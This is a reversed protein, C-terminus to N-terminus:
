DDSRRASAPAVSGKRVRDYLSPDSKFVMAQAAAWDLGKDEKQLAKAKRFLQAQPDDDAVDGDIGDSGLQTFLKGDKAQAAMSKFLREIEKADEETAKNKRVRLMLPGLKEATTGVVNLGRAKEVSEREEAANEMKEIKERLAVAEAKGKAIEERVDAPLADHKRKEIAEPSSEIADVKGKYEDREKTVATLDAQLKEVQAKLEDSMSDEETIPPNAATTQTDSAAAGKKTEDKPACAKNAEALASELRARIKTKDEANIGQTQSLRALANRLHPLDVSGDANKFPLKRLSRPVTKGSEDKTGGSEIYAFSADPLNNQEAQSAETKAMMAAGCEPCKGEKPMVNKGCDPCAVPAFPNAAKHILVVAGENAPDECLSVKSIILNKLKAPM